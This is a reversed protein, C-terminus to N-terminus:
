PTAEFHGKLQGFQGVGLVCQRRHHGGFRELEVMALVVLGVDSFRVLKDLVLLVEGAGREQLDHFGGSLSFLLSNLLLACSHFWLKKQCHRAGCCPWCGSPLSALSISSPKPLECANSSL